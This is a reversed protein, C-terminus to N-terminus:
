TSNSNSDSSPCTLNEFSESNKYERSFKGFLNVYGFTPIVEGSLISFLTTKGAGNHGLLAVCQTKQMGFTVNNLM